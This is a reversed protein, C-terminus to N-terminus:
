EMEVERPRWEQLDLCHTSVEPSLGCLRLSAKVGLAVMRPISLSGAYRQDVTLGQEIGQPWSCLQPASPPGISWIPVAGAFPNRQAPFTLFLGACPLHATVPSSEAASNNQPQLTGPSSTATPSPTFPDKAISSLCMVQRWHTPPPAHRLAQGPRTLPQTSM